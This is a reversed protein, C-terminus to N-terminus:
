NAAIELLSGNLLKSQGEVILEQGALPEGSTVELQGNHRRVVEVDIRRSVGNDNVFIYRNNTGSQRLVAIAPLLFGETKELLLEMDASMGPKLMESPNNIICETKFTRTAPDIYPYIKHVKGPFTKGPYIDSTFTAVMGKKVMPYYSQSINVIAKLPNIQQITVVAAKGAQTNPAGSYMEGNEFYKGTVIGSIPATFSANKKLYEVNTRALEVQTKAQEFQQEPISGTENLKSIREYADMASNLQTVALQLQTQDMELLVQGQQVRSGLEVFINEIRGPAAPAYYVEKFPLLNATYEITKDVKSPEIKSVRVLYSKEVRTSDEQSATVEPSKPQCAMLSIMAALTMITLNLNKM